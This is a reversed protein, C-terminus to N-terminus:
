VRGQGGRSLYEGVTVRQGRTGVFGNM